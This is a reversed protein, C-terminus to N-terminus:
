AIENGEVSDSFDEESSKYVNGIKLKSKNNLKEFYKINM